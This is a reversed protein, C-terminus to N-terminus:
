VHVGGDSAGFQQQDGVGDRPLLVDVALFHQLRHLLGDLLGAAGFVAVLLVDAGRDVALGAIHPQRAPGFGDLRHLVLFGLDGDVDRALEFGLDLTPSNM